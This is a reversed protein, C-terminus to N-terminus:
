AEVRHPDTRQMPFSSFYSNNSGSFLVLSAMFGGKKWRVCECKVYDKHYGEQSVLKKANLIRELARPLSQKILGRSIFRNLVGTTTPSLGHSSWVGIKLVTRGHTSVTQRDTQQFWFWRQVPLPPLATPKYINSIIGVLVSIIFTSSMLTCKYHM